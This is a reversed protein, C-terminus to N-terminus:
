RNKLNLVQELTKSLREISYPKPLIASFGKSDLIDGSTEASYGSSSIAKTGPAIKSLEAFVEEGGPGGPITLDVIVCDFPKGEKIARRFLGVAQEANSSGTASYGLTELMRGLSERILDDDDLYLIREGRGLVAASEGAASNLFAQPVAPIAFSVETGEGKTSHVQVFGEHNKVIMYASALGLGNGTSKTTFYPDFVKPLDEPSIGIGTDAIRVVVHPSKPLPFGYAAPDSCNFAGISITGTKPMAQEANIVLNSVVQAIQGDDISCCWLNDPLDFKVITKSGRVAFSASEQIVSAIPLIRKLPKGGRSFALLQRTVGQARTCASLAQSLFYQLESKGEARTQALSINGMIAQLFNNFDHAIGGALTGVSELKQQHLLQGELRRSLTVDHIVLVTGLAEFEGRALPASQCEIAVETGDIRILNGRVPHTGSVLLLKSELRRSETEGQIVLIDGLERGLADAEVCGIMTLAADNILTIHGHQDVSIVGEAIAHLTVRLNESLDELEKTRAAVIDELRKRYDSLEQQIHKQETIDRSVGVTMRVSGNRDVIASKVTHFNRVAGDFRTVPEDPINLPHGTTFVYHDDKIYQKTFDPENFPADIMDHLQQNTMGYYDRFAKNAWVIRSRPGKCLVLDTIADLIKQYFEVEELNESPSAVGNKVPLNESM